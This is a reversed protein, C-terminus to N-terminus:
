ADDGQTGAGGGPTARADTTTSAVIDGITVRATQDTYSRPGKTAKGRRPQARESPSGQGRMWQAELHQRLTARVSGVPKRHVRKSIKAM